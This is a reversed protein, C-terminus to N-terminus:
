LGHMHWGTGGADCLLMTEESETFHCIECALNADPSARQHKISPDIGPLHCPACNVLNNVMTRGCRGQLRVIGNPEAQVVKYIKPQALMQLTNDRNNRRRLDCTSLTTWTSSESSPRTAEAVCAPTMGCSNRLVCTTDAATISQEKAVSARTAYLEAALEANCPEM